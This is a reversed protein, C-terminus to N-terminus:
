CVINNAGMGSLESKIGAAFNLSTTFPLHIINLSFVQEHLCLTM